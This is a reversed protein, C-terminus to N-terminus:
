KNLANYVDNLIYLIVDRYIEDIGIEYTYSNGLFSQNWKYIINYQHDFRYLSLNHNIQFSEIHHCLQFVNYSKITSQKLKHKSM